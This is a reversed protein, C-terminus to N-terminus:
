KNQEKEPSHKAFYEKVREIWEMTLVAHTPGCAREGIFKGCQSCRPPLADLAAKLQQWTKEHERSQEDYQEQVFQRSKMVNSVQQELERIRELLQAYRPKEPAAIVDKLNKIERNREVLQQELERIRADAGALKPSHHMCLDGPHDYDCACSGHPALTKLKVHLADNSSEAEALDVRLRDIEALLTVVDFAAMAAQMEYGSATRSRIRQEEDKTM